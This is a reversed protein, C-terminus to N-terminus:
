PSRPHESQCLAMVHRGTALGPAMIRAQILGSLDM